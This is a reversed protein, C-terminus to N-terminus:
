EVSMDEQQKSVHWNDKDEQQKSVQWNGARSGKLGGDWTGSHGSPASPLSVPFSDLLTGALGPHLIPRIKMWCMPPVRSKEQAEQSVTRVLLSSSMEVLDGGSLL